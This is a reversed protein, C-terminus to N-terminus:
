SLMPTMHTCINEEYCKIEFHKREANRPFHHKLKTKAATSYENWATVPCYTTLQGNNSIHIIDM